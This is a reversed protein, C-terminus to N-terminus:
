LRLIKLGLTVFFRLPKHLFNQSNGGLASVDAAGGERWWQSRALLALAELRCENEQVAVALLNDEVPVNKSLLIM